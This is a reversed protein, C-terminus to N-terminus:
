PKAKRDLEKQILEAFEDFSRAGSLPIGNVYFAPTGSVGAEQGAKVDKDIEADHRKEAVCADFAALDLGAKEALQHLTDKDLKPSSQFLLKHYEWFKGQDAACNAAEAAGRALPHISDLPYDRYVLRVQEPYRAVIQEVTPEARKCFPCQYDSFEIITVPADAPGQSPGEAAVDIRPPEILVAVDAKERLGKVFAQRAENKGQAELRQRIPDSVAELKTDGLRAKIRDYFAQIDKQEVPPAKAEEVALLDEKSMGRAKAEAEVLQDDIMRDVAESRLEYLKAPDGGDSAQNFLDDKIHADLEAITITRGGVKAAPAAGEGTAGPGHAGTDCGLAVALLGALALASAPVAGRLARRLAQSTPMSM